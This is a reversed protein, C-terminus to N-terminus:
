KRRSRLRASPLGKGLTIQCDLRRYFGRQRYVAVTGGQPIPGM